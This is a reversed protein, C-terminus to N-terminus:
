RLANPLAVGATPPPPATSFARQHPKEGVFEACGAHCEKASPLFRSRRVATFVQEPPMLRENGSSYGGDQARGSVTARHQRLRLVDSENLPLCFLSTQKPTSSVAGRSTPM